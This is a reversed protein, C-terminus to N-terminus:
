GPITPPWTGSGMGKNDIDDLRNLIQTVKAAIQTLALQHAQIRIGLTSSGLRASSVESQANTATSNVATIRGNLTSYGGLAAQVSNYSSTARTGIIDLRDNLTPNNNRAATIEAQAADAKNEAVTARTGITDVRDKLNPYGTHAADIESQAAATKATMDGLRGNLSGFSGRATGVEATTAQTATIFTQMGVGAISTNNGMVNAGTATFAGSSTLGKETTMGTERIRVGAGLLPAAGQLAHVAQWLKVVEATLAPLGDRPVPAFDAPDDGNIITM